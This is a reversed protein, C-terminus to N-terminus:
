LEALVDNLRQSELLAERVARAIEARNDLFSRSDMAQVNVTVQPGATVTTGPASMPRILGSQDYDFAALGGPTIAQAIEVQNPRVVPIVPFAEEESRKGFLSLLGGILPVFGLGSTFISALGRGVSQARSEGDGGKASTNQVIAQTNEQTSELATQEVGRLQEIQRNLRELEEALSRRATEDPDSASPAITDAKGQHLLLSPAADESSLAPPPYLRTFDTGERLSHTLASLLTDIEDNPM